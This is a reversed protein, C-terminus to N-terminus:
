RRFARFDEFRVWHAAGDPAGAAALCFGREKENKRIASHFYTAYDDNADPGIHRDAFAERASAAQDRPTM